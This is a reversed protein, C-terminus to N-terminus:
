EGHFDRVAQENREDQDSFEKRGESAVGGFIRGGILFIEEVDSSVGPFGVALSNVEELKRGVSALKGKFAQGSFGVVGGPEYNM